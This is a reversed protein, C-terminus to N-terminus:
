SLIIIATQKNDSFHAAGAVHFLPAGKSSCLSRSRAGPELVEAEASLSRQGLERRSQKVPWCLTERRGSQM